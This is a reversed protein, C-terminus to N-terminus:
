LLGARSKMKSHGCIVMDPAFFIMEPVSIIM